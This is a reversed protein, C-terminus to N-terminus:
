PFRGSAALLDLRAQRAADEALAAATEADRARREADIVELNTTAGARYALNALQLAEESLQAADRAAKLADDARRLAEFSTRVDSQAQRIAGELAVRAEDALASREHGLGYRLGGDYFPISLILSAQWGTRPVTLTPHNQFFPQFVATVLPAYETWNLGLSQDAAAKRVEFALVDQRRALAERLADEISPPSALRVDDAADVPENAGILVGLTERARTLATYASQLQAEDTNFEQAARVEDIRNGVGGKFRASAYELHARANDRAQETVQVQKRQFIIALYARAAALAIQRRLDQESASAVQVNSSARAWQAWNRPAILPLSFLINASLQDAASIVRNDLRRDADLRTYAGNGFLIPLSASRTQEVLAGARRVELSATLSTPNLALARNVAEAFSIQKEPSLYKNAPLPGSGQPTPSNQQMSPNPSVVAPQGFVVGGPLLALGILLPVCRANPM